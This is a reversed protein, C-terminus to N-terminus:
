NLAEKFNSWTTSSLISVIKRKENVKYNLVKEGRSYTDPHSNILTLKKNLDPEIEALKNLITAYNSPDLQANIMYKTALMDAENELNRDYASSTLVKISEKIFAGSNGGTTSALLTTLGIEKILKKMVHNKEMHALEHGIIGCIESENDAIKLLGTYIVLHRNPLAFANIEESTVIHVKIKKSDIGNKSCIRNILSDIPQIIKKEIVVKKEGQFFDWYLNGLKEETKQSVWDVKLITFWDIRSLAFWLLFFLGFLIFGQTILKKM